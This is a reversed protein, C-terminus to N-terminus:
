SSAEPLQDRPVPPGLHYGQAFDIGLERVTEYITETAVFEAVTKIGLESAFGVISRIISRSAGNTDIEKILSGDIKLTNIDLSILYAFNSYGTGFDDIAIEIGHTKLREIVNIVPGFNDIGESELIEVITQKQLGAGVIREVLFDITQPNLLDEIALNLSFKEPRGTFTEVAKSIVTRTLQPYLRSRKAVDLFAFPSTVSGDTEIFRILCEYKKIEGSRVSFIPQLYIDIRDENLADKLKRTWTFNHEYERQPDSSESYVAYPAHSSRAHKLASDAMALLTKKSADSYSKAIGCTFEIDFSIDNYEFPHERLYISITDIVDILGVTDAADPQMVIFEDSSVRYCSFKLPACLATLVEALYILMQDGFYLGFLNNVEKFNDIDLLLVAPAPASRLEQSLRIRNPINTLRDTLIQEQLLKKHNILDTVNNKISIYEVINDDADLIPAITTEVYYTEGSKARNKITGHWIQKKTITSWLRKFFAPPMEPHRVINHPKGILEERSYGSLHAFKDNVYTIIGRPDTKTIHSSSDVINKYEELLKGRIHYGIAITQRQEIQRLEELLAEVDIPKVVFNEVKLKIAKQFYEPDSFASAVIVPIERGLARMREVMELGNMGPMKIDTLVVDPDIEELSALAASPEPFPYVERIERRLIKELQKLLIPDDEVVMLRLDLM